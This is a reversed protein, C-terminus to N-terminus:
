IFVYKKCVFSIYCYKPFSFAQSAPPTPSLTPTLYFNLTLLISFVPWFQSNISPDWPVGTLFCHLLIKGNSNCDQCKLASAFTSNDTTDRCRSCRCKFFWENQIHLGRLPQGVIPPVYSITIEEESRSFICIEILL